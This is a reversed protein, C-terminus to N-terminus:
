PQMSKSLSSKTKTMAAKIVENTIQELHPLELSFTSILQRLDNDTSINTSYNNYPVQLLNHM